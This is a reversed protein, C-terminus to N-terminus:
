KSLCILSTLKQKVLFRGQSRHQQISRNRPTLASLSERGRQDYMESPCVDGICSPDRFFSSGVAGIYRWILAIRVLKVGM